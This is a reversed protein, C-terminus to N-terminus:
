KESLLSVLLEHDLSGFCDAIDGEIFWASGKWHHYIERLATGCGRGERFGHSHESFQIDFYADLILRIAEALLKDTWSTIGLPRKKGNKKPIYVRRAPKCHYREYRLAEVLADIKELSMGEATDANVGRTM